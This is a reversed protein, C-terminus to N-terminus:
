DGHVSDSKGRKALSDEADDDERTRKSPRSEAQPFGPAFDEGPALALPLERLHRLVAAMRASHPHPVRMVQQMRLAVEACFRRSVLGSRPIGNLRSTEISGPPLNPPLYEPEIGALEWLGEQDRSQLPYMQCGGGFPAIARVFSARNMGGSIMLEKPAALAIFLGAIARTDHNLMLVPTGPKICMIGEALVNDEMFVTGTLLARYCNANTAGLVFGFGAEPRPDPPYRTTDMIDHELEQRTTPQGMGATALDPLAETNKVGEPLFGPGCAWAAALVMYPNYNSNTIISEIINPPVAWPSLGHTVGLMPPRRQQHCGPGGMKAVLRAGGHGAGASKAEWQAIEDAKAVLEGLSEAEVTSPDVPAIDGKVGDTKVRVIPRKWMLVLLALGVPSPLEMWDSCKAISVTPDSPNRIAVTQAFSLACMRLWEINVFCHGPPAAKGENEAKVIADGTAEEGVIGKVRACGQFSQSGVVSFFVFVGGTSQGLRERLSERLGLPLIWQQDRVSAKLSQARSARVTFFSVPGEAEAAPLMRAAGTAVFESLLALLPGQIDLRGSALVGKGLEEGSLPREGPAPEEFPAGPPPAQRSGPPVKSQKIAVESSATFMTALLPRTSAPEPKHAYKCYPGFPCFGENYRDCLQDRGTHKYPCEPNDCDVGYKCEPMKDMDFVHLFECEDDKACKGQMWFRCVVQKKPRGSRTFMMAETATTPMGTGGGDAGDAAGAAAAGGFSPAAGEPASAQAAVDPEFDFVLEGDDM